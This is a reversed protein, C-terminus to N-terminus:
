PFICAEGGPAVHLDGVGAHVPEVVVRYTTQRGGEEFWKVGFRLLNAGGCRAGVGRAAAPAPPSRPRCRARCPGASRPTRGRGSTPVRGRWGLVGSGQKPDPYRNPVKSGGGGRGGTASAAAGPSLPAAPQVV